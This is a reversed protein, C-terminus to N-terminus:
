IILAWLERLTNACKLDFSSTSKKWKCYVSKIDWQRCLLVIIVFLIYKFQAEVTHVYKIDIFGCLLCLALSKELRRFQSEGLGEVEPSFAGGGGWRPEPSPACESALSPISSDWNRRPSMCQPVRYIYTSQRHIPEYDRIRFCQKSLHLPSPNIDANHLTAQIISASSWNTWVTIM